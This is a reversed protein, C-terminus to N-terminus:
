QAALNSAVYRTGDYDASIRVHDGTKLKTASPDNANFFIQYTKDDRPDTLVISGAALDLSSVTGSFVFSAGPTALVTIEKAIGQGKGGSQFTVNLLAGRVLDFQGRNEATFKEQGQRTVTTDKSVEVRFPNGTTSGSLTLLGSQPDFDLVRGQYSGQPLNSLIHISVAFIKAGDLTTQVSVHNSPGLDHLPIRTGDRFVQTREDYLIKMPKQGYVNLVIQDRVQDVRRIEGGFITSKGKPLPPVDPSGAVAGAVPGTSSAALSDAQAGAFQSFALGGLVFMTLVREMFVGQLPNNQKLYNSPV